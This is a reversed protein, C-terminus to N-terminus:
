APAYWNTRWSISVTAVGSQFGVAAILQRDIAVSATTPSTGLLQGRERGPTSPRRLVVGSIPSRVARVASWGSMVCRPLSPQLSQRHVTLSCRIGPLLRHPMVFPTADLM